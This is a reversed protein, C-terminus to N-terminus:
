VSDFVHGVLRDYNAQETSVIADVMQAFATTPLLEGTLVRATALAISSVAPEHRDDRLQFHFQHTEGSSPEGSSGHSVITARASVSRDRHGNGNVAGTAGPIPLHLRLYNRVAADFAALADLPRDLLALSRVLCISGRFFVDKPDSGGLADDALSGIDDRFSAPAVGHFREARHRLAASSYLLDKMTM